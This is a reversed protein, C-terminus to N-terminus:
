AGSLMRAVQLQRENTENGADPLALYTGRVIGWARIRDADLGEAAFTATVREVHERTVAVGIPNWMLTVVDFEREGLMPKPDIALWRDGDRILNHHHFDGHVVLEHRVTLSAFMRKAVRVLDGDGAQDLWAPVRDGIRDFPARAAAPRWLRTAVDAAVALADGDALASADTGPRARELLMARRPPDNRLLRVAGDGDWLALAEPEHTSEDDDAPVVKLVADDGAPAVYSFRSLAFPPGLTM